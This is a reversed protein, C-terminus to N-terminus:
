DRPLASREWEQKSREKRAERARSGKNEETRKRRSNDNYTAIAKISGHTARGKSLLVAWRASSLSACDSSWGSVGVVGVVGVSVGRDGKERERWDKMVAEETGAEGSVGL